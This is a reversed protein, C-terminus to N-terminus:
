CLDPLRDPCPTPSPKRVARKADFLDLLFGLHTTVAGSTRAASPVPATEVQCRRRGVGGPEAAGVTGGIYSADAAPGTPVYVPLQSAVNRLAVLASSALWSSFDRPLGRQKSAPRLFLYETAGFYACLRIAESLGWLPQRLHGPETPHDDFVENATLNGLHAPLLRVHALLVRVHAPRSSGDGCHTTSLETHRM